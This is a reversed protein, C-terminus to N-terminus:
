GEGPHSERGKGGERRKKFRVSGSSLAAKSDRIDGNDDQSIEMKECRRLEISIRRGEYSKPIVSIATSNYM